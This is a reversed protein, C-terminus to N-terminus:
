QNKERTLHKGQKGSTRAFARKISELAKGVEFTSLATKLIPSFQEVREAKYWSHCMGKEVWGFTSDTCYFCFPFGTLETHLYCVVLRVSGNWRIVLQHHVIKRLSNHNVCCWLSTMGKSTVIELSIKTGALLSLEASAKRMEKRLGRWASHYANRREMASEIAESYGILDPPNDVETKNM